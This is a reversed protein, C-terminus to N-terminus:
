RESWISRDLAPLLSGKCDGFGVGDGCFGVIQIEEGDKIYGSAPTDGPAHESLCGHEHREPGSITGIALLDGTRLGCGASSQHAILQEFSWDMVNASTRGLIRFKGAETSVGIQMDIDLLKCDHQDLYPALETERKRMPVTFPALADPTIIWPSLSTASHKSNLPGVPIM